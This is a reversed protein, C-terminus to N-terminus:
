DTDSEHVARFADSHEGLQARLHRPVGARGRFEDECVKRLILPFPDQGTVGEFAVRLARNHVYLRQPSLDEGYASLVEVKTIAIEIFIRKADARRNEVM